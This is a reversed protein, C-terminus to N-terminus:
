TLFNKGNTCFILGYSLSSSLGFIALKVTLKTWPRSIFFTGSHPSSNSFVEHYKMFYRSIEFLVGVHLSIKKGSLHLVM